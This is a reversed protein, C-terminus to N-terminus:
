GDIRGAFSEIVGPRRLEYVALRLQAPARVSACPGQPIELERIDEAGAARLADLAAAYDAVRYVLIPETGELHGSLLIAPGEDSVRLCAVTTGMGRVKWILQAGLSAVFADAAADVDAAPVYVYDLSEFALAGNSLNLDIDWVSTSVAQGASM